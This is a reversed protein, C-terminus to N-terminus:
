SYYDPTHNIDFITITDTHDFNENKPAVLAAERKGKKTQPAHPAAPAAPLSQAKSKSCGREREAETEESLAELDIQPEGSKEAQEDELCALL